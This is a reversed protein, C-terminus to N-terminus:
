RRGASPQRNRRSTPDTLLRQTPMSRRKLSEKPTQEGRCYQRDSRARCDGGGDKQRLSGVTDGPNGEYAAIRMATIGTAIM